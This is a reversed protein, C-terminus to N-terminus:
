PPPGSANTLQRRVWALSVGARTAMAVYWAGVLPGVDVSGSGAPPFPFTLLNMVVLTIAIAVGPVAYLWGLRPHRVSAVAFLLTATAILMDWAVDLGFHVRDLMRVLADPDGIPGAGPPLPHRIALQVILMLMVTLGALVGFVAALDAAFATRHVCLFERLGICGVALLMGFLSAVVVGAPPPWPVFFFTSYVVVALVGAIVGTRIRGTVLAEDRGSRGNM